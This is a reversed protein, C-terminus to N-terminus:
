NVSTRAVIRSLQLDKYKYYFGTLNSTSKGFQNKSGIEFANVFEPSFTEPVAFIPSSPPNIGGSKYGRSYSSYISNDPTIQFDSVARGTSENFKANRVQFPQNGPSNADADYSGFYPSTYANTSGNPVLWNFVTTRAIIDKQDHNYRSGLTSKIRDDFKYYAEGFIGYSSVKSYDSNNRYFPTASYAPPSASGSAT